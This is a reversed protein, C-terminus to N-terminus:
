LQFIVWNVNFLWNSVRELKLWAQGTDIDTSVLTVVALTFGHLINSIIYMKDVTIDSAQGLRHSTPNDTWYGPNRLLSRQHLIRSEPLNWAGVKLESFVRTYCKKHNGQLVDLVVLGAGFIVQGKINVFSFKHSVLYYITYYM